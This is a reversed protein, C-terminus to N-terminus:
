ILAIEQYDEGLNGNGVVKGSEFNLNLDLDVDGDKARNGNCLGLTVELLTDRDM